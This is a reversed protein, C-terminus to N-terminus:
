WWLLCYLHFLSLVLSLHYIHVIGIFGAFWVLGCAVFCGSKAVGGTDHCGSKGIGGAGAHIYLVSCISVLCDLLVM